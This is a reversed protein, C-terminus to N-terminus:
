VFTIPTSQIWSVWYLTCLSARTFVTILSQAEDFTTFKKVMETVILKELVRGCLSLKIQYIRLFRTV